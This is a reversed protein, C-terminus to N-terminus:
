AAHLVSMSVVVLIALAVAATFAALWLQAKSRAARRRAFDVGEGADPVALARVPAPDDRAADAEASSFAAREGL